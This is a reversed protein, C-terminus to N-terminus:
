SEPESNVRSIPAPKKLFATKVKSKNEEEM